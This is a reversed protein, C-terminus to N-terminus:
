MKIRGGLLAPAVLDGPKQGSSCSTWTTSKHRTLFLVSGRIVSQWWRSCRPTAVLTLGCPRVAVGVGTCVVCQTGAPVPKAPRNSLASGRVRAHALQRPRASGKLVPRGPRPGRPV